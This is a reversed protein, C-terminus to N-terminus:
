PQGGSIQPFEADNVVDDFFRQAAGMAIIMLHRQPQFDIQDAAQPFQDAFRGILQQGGTVILEAAHPHKQFRRRFLPVTRSCVLPAFAWPRGDRPKREVAIFEITAPGTKLGSGLTRYHRKHETLDASKEALVRIAIDRM